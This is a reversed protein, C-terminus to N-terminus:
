PFSVFGLWTDSDSLTVHVCCIALQGILYYIDLVTFMDLQTTFRMQLTKNM